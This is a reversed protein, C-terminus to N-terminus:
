NNIQIDSNSVFWYIFVESLFIRRNLSWCKFIQVDFHSSWNFFLFLSSYIKEIWHFIIILGFILNSVCFLILFLLSFNRWKVFWNYIYISFYISLVHFWFPSFFISLFFNILFFCFSFFVFSLIHSIFILFFFTKKMFYFLDTKVIFNMEIFEVLQLQNFIFILNIDYWILIKFSPSLFFKMMNPWIWKTFVKNLLNTASNSNDFYHRKM